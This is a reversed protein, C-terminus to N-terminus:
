LYATQKSHKLLKLKVTKQKAPKPSTNQLPLPPIQPIDPHYLASLSEMEPIFNDVPKWFLYQRQGGSLNSQM